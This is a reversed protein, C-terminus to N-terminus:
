GTYSNKMLGFIAHCLTEKIKDYLLSEVYTKKVEVQYLIYKKFLNKTRGLPKGTYKHPFGAGILSHRQITCSRGAAKYFQFAAKCLFPGVM